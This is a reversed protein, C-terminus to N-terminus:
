DWTSGIIKFQLHFRSRKAITLLELCTSTPSSTANPVIMTHFHWFRLANNQNYTAVNDKPWSSMWIIMLYKARGTREVHWQSTFDKKFFLFHWLIAEMGLIWTSNTTAVQFNM